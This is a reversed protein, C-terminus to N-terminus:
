LVIEYFKPSYQGQISIGQGSSAIPTFDQISKQSHTVNKIHQQKPIAQMRNTEINRKYVKKKRKKKKGRVNNKKYHAAKSGQNPGPGRLKIPM